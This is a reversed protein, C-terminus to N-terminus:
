SRSVSEPFPPEQPEHEGLLVPLSIPNLLVSIDRESTSETACASANRTIQEEIAEAAAARILEDSTKKKLYLIVVGNTRISVYERTDSLRADYHVNATSFCCLAGMGALVTVDDGRVCGVVLSATADALL